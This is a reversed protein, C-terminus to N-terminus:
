SFTGIMPTQTGFKKSQLMTQNAFLLFDQFLLPFPVKENWMGHKFSIYKRNNIELNNNIEFWQKNKITFMWLARLSGHIGKSPLDGIHSGKYKAPNIQRWLANSKTHYRWLWKCLHASNTNKLKSLGLGGKDKPSTVIDWRAICPSHHSFKPQQCKFGM